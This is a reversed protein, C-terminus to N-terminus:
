RALLLTRWTASATRTATTLLEAGTTAVRDPWFSSDNRAVGAYGGALLVKGDLLLTATHESRGSIMSAGATWGGGAPDYLATGSFIAISPSDRWDACSDMTYWPCPSRTSREGGSLLVRGNALAVARQGSIGSVAIEEGQLSPAGLGPAATWSSTAPDYVEAQVAETDGGWPAGTGGIVLVQGGPLLTAANDARNEVMPGTLSWTDSAPDYLEALNGEGGAVLIKGDLLRVAAHGRRPYLLSAAPSFAGAAPDYIECIALEQWRGLVSFGGAVLVRGDALLTATHGGRPLGMPAVATWANLAPDYIEAAALVSDESMRRNGGLVLVRGDTLLTATHGSRASGMSAAPTWQRARPDYIEASSHADVGYRTDDRGGAVLVRGDLLRTATHNARAVSMAGTPSPLQAEQTGEREDSGPAARACGAVLALGMLFLMLLAAREVCVLDHRHRRPPPAQAQQSVCDM